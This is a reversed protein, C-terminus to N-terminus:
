LHDRMILPKFLKMVSYHAGAYLFEKLLKETIEKVINYNVYLQFGLYTRM